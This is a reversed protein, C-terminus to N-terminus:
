EDNVAEGAAEEQRSGGCLEMAAHPQSEKIRWLRTMLIQAQERCDKSRLWHRQHQRPSVRHRM